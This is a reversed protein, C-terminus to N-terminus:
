KSARAAERALRQARLRATKEEVRRQEALYEAYAKEGEKLQREKKKFSSEALDRAEKPSTVPLEKAQMINSAIRLQRLWNRHAKWIFKSPCYVVGTPRM